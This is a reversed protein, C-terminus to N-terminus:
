EHNIWDEVVKNALEPLAVEILRCWVMYSDSRIGHHNKDLRGYCFDGWCGLCLCAVVHAQTAGMVYPYLQQTTSRCKTCTGGHLESAM